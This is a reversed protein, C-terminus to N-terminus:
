ETLLIKHTESHEESAINILYIGKHLHGLSITNNAENLWEQLVLQGVNNYISIQYENLTTTNFVIFDSSPNPYIEFFDNEKLSTVKCDETFIQDLYSIRNFIWTTTYEWDDHKYEYAAWVLSEKTYIDNTKLLQYSADFMSILTSPTITTSRLHLWKNKLKEKFGGASCDHLLRDYLNNRLLNHTGPDKSGDYYTGFTADLDWPVYFYRDDTNYKALYLNKSTNDTAKLLNLFIFYDVLNDVEFYNSYEEYFTDDSSNIVFDVLDYLNSWNTEEDPHKYEFGAWISSNNDYSPLSSFTNAEGWNIGKYLEGRIQDKHKKLKLLKRDVKEGICYLGQYENDIFLEVYEMSIGNFAEPENEQYHLTNIVKWLDNNTKSRIRLPENYMAQLNWDDDSRMGLLSVDHTINGTPDVWFEIEMSKKPFSQSTAGRYEIGIFSEIFNQDSDIMKFNALVKPADIITFDSSINVIPLETFYFTFFSNHSPIFIKYGLGAEVKTVPTLFECTENLIIHTKTKTWTSNVVSVDLNTIALQNDFDIFYQNQNIQITDHSFVATTSLIFTILIIFYSRM